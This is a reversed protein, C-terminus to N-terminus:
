QFPDEEEHITEEILNAKKFAKHMQEIQIKMKTYSSIFSIFAIIKIIEAIILFVKIFNMTSILNNM